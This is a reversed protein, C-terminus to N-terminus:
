SELNIENKVNIGQNKDQNYQALKQNEQLFVNNGCL